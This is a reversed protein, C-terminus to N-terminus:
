NSTTAQNHTLWIQLGKEQEGFPSGHVEYLDCLATYYGTPYRQYRAKEVREWALEIASLHATEESSFNDMAVPVLNM